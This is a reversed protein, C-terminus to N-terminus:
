LRAVLVVHRLSVRVVAVSRPVASAAHDIESVARILEADKIDRSREVREMM